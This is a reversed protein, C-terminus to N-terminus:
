IEQSANIGYEFDNLRLLLMGDFALFIQLCGSTKFSMAQDALEYVTTGDCALIETFNIM